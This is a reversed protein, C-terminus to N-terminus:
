MYEGTPETSCRDWKVEQVGMLNLKFKSMEETFRSILDARFLVRVNRKSCEIDMKRLKFRGDLSFDLELVIESVKYLVYKILHFTTQKVGLGWCPHGGRAM